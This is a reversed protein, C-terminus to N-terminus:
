QISVHSIYTLSLLTKRQPGCLVLAREGTGDASSILWISLM